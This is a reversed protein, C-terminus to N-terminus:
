PTADDHDKWWDPPPPPTYAPPGPLLAALREPALHLVDLPRPPEPPEYAPVASGPLADEQHHTCLVAYLRAVPDALAAEAQNVDAETLRRGFLLQREPASRVRNRRQTIRYRIAAKGEVAPDLGLVQYLTRRYPNVGDEPWGWARM